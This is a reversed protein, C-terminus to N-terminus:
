RTGFVAWIPVAGSNSEETTLEPYVSNYFTVKLRIHFRLVTQLGM